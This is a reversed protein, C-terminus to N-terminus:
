PEAPHTLADNAAAFLEPQDAPPRGVLREIQTSRTVLMALHADALWAATSASGTTRASTGAQARLSASTQPSTGRRALGHAAARADLLADAIPRRRAVRAVQYAGHVEDLGVPAGPEAYEWDWAVLGRHCRALNWPVWDGHWRGLTVDHRHRQEVQELLRHAVTHDANAARRGQWWPADAVRMTRLDGDLGRVPWAAPVQTGPLRRADTPLPAVVALRLGEWWSEALLEPVVLRPDTVTGWTALTAAETAVLRDAV